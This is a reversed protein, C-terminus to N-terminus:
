NDLAYVMGKMEEIAMEDSQLGDLALTEKLIYLIKRRV